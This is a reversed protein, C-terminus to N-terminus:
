APLTPQPTTAPLALLDGAPSFLLGHILSFHQIRISAGFHDTITTVCEEDSVSEVTVASIGRQIGGIEAFGSMQISSVSEFRLFLLPWDAVLSTPQAIHRNWVPDFSIAAVVTDHWGCDIHMGLWGSDHLTYHELFAAARFETGRDWPMDGDILMSAIDPPLIHDMARSTPRVILSQRRRALLAASVVSERRATALLARTRGQNHIAADTKM